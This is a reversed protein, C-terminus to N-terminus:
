THLNYGPPGAVVLGSKQRGHIYWCCWATEHIHKERSAILDRYAVKGCIFIKEDWNEVRRFKEDSECIRKADERCLSKITTSEGPLLIIPVRPATSEGCEPTAPLYAEDIAITVQEAISLISAPTRGRNTVMVTFSNEMTLSPAVSILLWPREADVIAQAQLLAAQATEAAAAAATEAARTQREIKRLLFLALMIGVYGLIALM